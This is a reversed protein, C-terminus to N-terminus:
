ASGEGAAAPQRRKLSAALLGALIPFWALLHMVSSLGHSEILLGIMGVGLGGIGIGFGLTLGSAMAANKSIVEQALVVTVSFSAMLSVGALALLVDRALGDAHLALHCLPAALFLSIAIVARRGLRDSLHGGLVGGMAGAFLMLFLLRGSHVLPVGQNQLYLPLFAILGFYTVSRFSVVLVIKTLERWHRRLLPRMPVSESKCGSQQKPSSFRLMAAAALGPIVFLPTAGLGQSAIVPVALLPTLAWGVNGSATFVAQFLGRRNGSVSGIMAAAQPHFAATGLGSLLCLAFLAAYNDAVGLLCLLAAMWVTGVYVMWRQNKRDVLYGFVPQLISSTTTFASILFAGRGVGLGAAVLFPLLTQILNMYWDNVLHALSIAAIARLKPPTTM